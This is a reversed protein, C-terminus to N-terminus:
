LEVDSLDMPEIKSVEVILEEIEGDINVSWDIDGDVTYGRNTLYNSIAEEIEEKDLIVKIIEKM